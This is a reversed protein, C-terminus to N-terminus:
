IGYKLNWIVFVLNWVYRQGWPFIGSLRIQLDIMRHFKKKIAPGHTTSLSSNIM